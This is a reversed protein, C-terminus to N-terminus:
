IPLSPEDTTREAFIRIGIIIASFLLLVLGTAVYWKPFFSFRSFLIIGTGSLALTLARKFDAKRHLYDKIKSLVRHETAKETSKEKKNGDCAPFRVDYKKELVPIISKDRVVLKGELRLCLDRCDDDPTNCFYVVKKGNASKIAQVVKERKTKASFDFVYSCEDTEIKNAFSYYETGSKDFISSFLAILQNDPMLELNLLVSELRKREDSKLTSAVNRKKLFSFVLLLVCLAFVASLSYLAPDSDIKPRLIVSTFVFTVFGSLITDSVIPLTIKKM